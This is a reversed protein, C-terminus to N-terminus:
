LFGCSEESDAGRERQRRVALQLVQSVIETNLQWMESLKLFWCYKLFLLFFLPSSQNGRAGDEREELSHSPTPCIRGAAAGTSFSLSWAHARESSTKTQRRGVLKGTSLAGIVEWATKRYWSFQVMFVATANAAMLFLSRVAAASLPLHHKKEETTPCCLTLGFPILLPWTLSSIGLPLIAGPLVHQWGPEPQELPGRASVLGEAAWSGRRLAACSAFCSM